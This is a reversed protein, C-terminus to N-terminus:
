GRKLIAKALYTQGAHLLITKHRTFDNVLVSDRIVHTLTGDCRDAITWITGRVTASGYRGTTRFNGKASAHMLQLTRTSNAITASDAAKKTKTKAKCTAYTPAGQFAGEQLAFNTLGKTIGTRVQTLKFVGGAITANQTKGVQGTATVIKLSGNLADIQSGTPIQRAETLPVFGQGKGLQAAGASPDGAPGLTAGPPLKIFVVGSVPTVNVTKGLVPRPPPASALTSFTQDPGATTGASNSAVLRVHYVANPVLGSVPASIAHDTSDSGVQQVPTTQDYLVTSFGPGRDVPDIGYEFHATTPLGEPNVLGSFAAGSIQVAPAGPTVGPPASYTFRDATGVASTGGPSAVTVDVTGSGAPGTATIQSDSVVSFSTASTTGFKVETAGMFNAGAITVVTGGAAPGAAPSISSVSPADYGYRVANSTGSPTTVAVDVTGTGAPATATIQSDSAVKLGTAPTNGFHVATAGTFNTGTITITNGGVAPGHTPSISSIAPATYTYQDAQSTASTGGPGSVTVDVTGSGPPSVATIQSDSDIKFSAAPTPGFSVGTAGTTLNSGAITVSTGGAAPGTSPSIGTVVFSCAGATVQVTNSLSGGNPSQVQVTHSGAPLAAIEIRTSSEVASPVASGDVLVKSGEVFNSGNIVTVPASAGGSCVEVSSITPTGADAPTNVSVNDILWGRYGNYLSDRTDFVFRVEVNSQGKAGSLDVLYEHWSPSAELGNNSYSQFSSGAPNSTPNLQVPSSWTKGGDTSYEVQMLDFTDADVAEIEWWAFFHLTASAANALSFIPSTLTGSFAERSTCGNKSATTNPTGAYTNWDAGCFTGSTTDGFWAAHTGVFASPLNGADPLTVLDPNIGPSAVSIAQPKNLIQWLPDAANMSASTDAVTWGDLTGNTWNEPGFVTSALASGSGLICSALLVVLV